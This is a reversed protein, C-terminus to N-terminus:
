HSTEGSSFGQRNRASSTTWLSISRLRSEAGRQSMSGSDGTRITNGAGFAVDGGSRNRSEAIASVGWLYERAHAITQRLEKGRRRNRENEANSKRAYVACNM